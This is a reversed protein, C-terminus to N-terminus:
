SGALPPEIPPWSGDYPEYSVIRWEGDIRNLMMRNTILDGTSLQFHTHVRAVDGATENLATWDFIARPTPTNQRAWEIFEDRTLGQRYEGASLDWMAEYNRGYVATEFEIATDATTLDNDRFAIIGFITGVTM